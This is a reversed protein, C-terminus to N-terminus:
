KCGTLVDRHGVTRSCPLILVLHRRILALFRLAGAEEFGGTRGFAALILGLEVVGYLM